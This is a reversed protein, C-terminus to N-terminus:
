GASVARNEPFFVVGHGDGPSSSESGNLTFLCVTLDKSSDMCVFM